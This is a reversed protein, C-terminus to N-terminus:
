NPGNVRASDLRTSGLRTPISSFKNASYFFSAFLDVDPLCRMARVGVCFSLGAICILWVHACCSAAQPGALTNPAM